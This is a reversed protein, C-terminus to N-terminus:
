EHYRADKRAKVRSLLEKTAENLSKERDKLSHRQLSNHHRSRKHRRVKSLIEDLMHRVRESKNKENTRNVFKTLVRVSIQVTGSPESIVEDRIKQSLDDEANVDTLKPNIFLDKMRSFSCLACGFYYDNMRYLIKNWKSQFPSASLKCTQVNFDYNGCELLPLSFSGYGLVTKLGTDTTGCVQLFVHIQERKNVDGKNDANPDEHPCISIQHGFFYPAYHEINQYCQYNFGFITCYVVINAVLVSLISIINADLFVMLEFLILIFVFNLMTTYRLSFSHRTVHKLQRTSGMISNRDNPVTIDYDISLSVSNWQSNFGTASIFEVQVLKEDVARTFSSASIDSENIRWLVKQRHQSLLRYQEDRERLVLSELENQDNLFGVWELTYQYISKNATSFAFTSLKAGKVTSKELCESSVFIEDDDSDESEVNSFGPTVELMGSRYLKMTCLLESHFPNSLDCSSEM